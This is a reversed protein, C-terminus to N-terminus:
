DEDFFNRNNQGLTQVLVSRDLFRNGRECSTEPAFLCSHCAAGHITNVGYSPLNESCTPDSACLRCDDLANLIHREMNTTKGMEILGGLTGESGPAATYILVGAMPEENTGPKNYYIRERISTQSYGCEMALRRMLAHSFSHLLVYRIGPYGSTPNIAGQKRRLDIYASYFVADLDKVEAKNCWADVADERFQIFLGEGHVEVAPFWTPTGQTIPVIKATEGTEVADIEEGPAYIRSFGTLARVERMREVLIVQEIQKSFHAPVPEPSLRFDETQTKLCPKKFAHWEAILPNDEHSSNSDADSPPNKRRNIEAMIEDDTFAGMDSIKGMGRLYGIIVANTVTQLDDWHKTVLNALDSTSEPISIVSFIQPFWLNSSGVQIARAHKQCPEANDYDHLHPRRGTCMPMRNRNENGFAMSLPRSAGCDMCKVYMDRMEGSVGSDFYQLTTHDEHGPGGHVFEVWPFEDLHGNECCVLFPVPLAKPNKGKTCSKHIYHTEEPRFPNSKLEFQGSSLPALTNCATCHMWTPFPMAPIGVHEEKGFPDPGFDNKESVPPTLLKDVQPGFVARIQQLLRDEQISQCHKPDNPWDDLGMVLASIHPFDVVSGIGYTYLIQTPRIEGAKISSNNAM